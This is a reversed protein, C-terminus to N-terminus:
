LLLRNYYQRPYHFSYLFNLDCILFLACWTNSSSADSVVATWNLTLVKLAQVATCTLGPIISHVCAVTGVVLGYVFM